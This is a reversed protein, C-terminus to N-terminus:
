RHERPGVRVAGLDSEVRQALGNVPEGADARAGARAAFPAIRALFLLAAQVLNETDAFALARQRRRLAAVVDVGREAPREIAGGAAGAAGAHDQGDFVELADVRRAQDGDLVGELTVPGGPGDGEDRRM